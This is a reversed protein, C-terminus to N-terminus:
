KKNKKQKPKAHPKVYENMNHKSKKHINFVGNELRSSLDQLDRLKELIEEHDSVVDDLKIKSIKKISDKILKLPKDIADSFNKINRTKDVIDRINNKAKEAESNDGINEPNEIRKIYSIQKKQEDDDWYKRLDRIEHMVEREFGGTSLMKFGIDTLDAYDDAGYGDKSKVPKLIKQHFDRFANWTEKDEIISYEEEREIAQLYDEIVKLPGLFDDEIEKKAAKFKRTDNVILKNGPDAKIYADIDNGQLMIEEQMALAKNLNTYESRGDKSIQLLRELTRIQQETPVGGDGKEKGDPLLIVKMMSFRRDGTEELLQEMVAKRRNGDVLFGDCTAIAYKDQGKVGILEKLVKFKKKDQEFLKQALIAQFPKNTHTKKEAYEPNQKLFTKMKANIRNNDPRFHLLDIPVLWIDRAVSYEKDNRFDIIDNKPVKLEQRKERIADAFVEIIERKAELTKHTDM